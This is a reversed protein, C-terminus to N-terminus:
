ICMYVRLTYIYKNLEQAVGKNQNENKQWM